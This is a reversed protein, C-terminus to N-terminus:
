RAFCHLLFRFIILPPDLFLLAPAPPVCVLLLICAFSRPHGEITRRLPQLSRRIRPLLFARLSLPLASALAPRLSDSLMVLLSGLAIQCTWRAWDSGVLYIPLSAIWPLLLLPLLQELSAAPCLALVTLIELAGGLIFALLIVPFHLAFSAAFALARHLSWTLAGLAPPFPAGPACASPLAFRWSSCVASATRADGHHLVSAVLGVLAPTFALALLLALTRRAFQLRRLTYAIVILNLPLWTFLFFGEHLLVLFLSLAAVAAVLIAARRARAAPHLPRGRLARRCSLVVLLTGWLFVVDKRDITGFDLVSILLLPNFLLAFRWVAPGRLRWSVRLFWACIALYAGTTFSVVVPLIGWGTFRVISILLAGGLGRRVFGGAYDIMWGSVGWDSAPSPSFRTFFQLTRILVLLLVLAAFFYEPFRSIPEAPRPSAPDLPDPASAAPRLRSASQPRPLVSNPPQPPLAM